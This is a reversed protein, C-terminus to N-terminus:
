SFQRIRQSETKMAEQVEPLLLPYLVDDSASLSYSGSSLLSHDCFLILCSLQNLFFNLLTFILSQQALLQTTGSFINNPFLIFHFLIACYSCLQHCNVCSFSSQVSLSYSNNYNPAELIPSVSFLTYACPQPVSPPITPLFMRLSQAPFQSSHNPFTLDLSRVRRDRIDLTQPPFWHSFPCSFFLGCHLM